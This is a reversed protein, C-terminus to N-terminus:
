PLHEADASNKLKLRSIQSEMRLVASNLEKNASNLEKNNSQMMQLRETDRTVNKAM